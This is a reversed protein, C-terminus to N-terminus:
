FPSSRGMCDCPRRPIGDEGGRNWNERGELSLEFAMEVRSYRRVVRIWSPNEQFDGELVCVNGLRSQSPLKLCANVKKEWYKM